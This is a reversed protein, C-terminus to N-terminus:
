TGQAALEKLGRPQDLMRRLKKADLVLHAFMKCVDRPQFTGMGSDLSTKPPSHEVTLMLRTCDFGEERVNVAVQNSLALLRIEPTTRAKM